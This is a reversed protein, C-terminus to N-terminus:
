ETHYIIKQVEMVYTKFYDYSMYYNGNDGVNKGWSNRLTFLGKHEMGNRDKAVANDDYGIIMMEHGALEPNQDDTIEQSLAWTDFRSHYTACAGVSCHQYPVITAFTLRVKKDATQKSALARKVQTLVAEPNYPQEPNAAFRNDASLIPQWFIKDNVKSSM